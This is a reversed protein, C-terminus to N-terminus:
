MRRLELNRTLDQDVIEHMVIVYGRARSRMSFKV